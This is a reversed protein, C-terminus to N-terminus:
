GKLYNTIKKELELAKAVTVKYEAILNDFDPTSDIDVENAEVKYETGDKKIVKIGLSVEYNLKSDAIM